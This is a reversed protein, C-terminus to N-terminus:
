GVQAEQAAGDGGQGVEASGCVSRGGKGVNESLKRSCRREGVDRINFIRCITRM